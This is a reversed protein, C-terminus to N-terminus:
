IKPKSQKQNTKIEEIIEEIEVKYLAYKLCLSLWIFSAIGLVIFVAEWTKAPLIFDRFTATVFATVIAILLSFPAIWDHKREAKKLNESLCIKLRDHTTVIVEQKMNPFVEVEIMQMINLATETKNVEENQM